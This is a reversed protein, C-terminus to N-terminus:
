MNQPSYEAASHQMTHPGNNPQGPQGEPPTSEPIPPINNMVIARCFEAMPTETSYAIARIHDYESPTLSLRIYRSQKKEVSKAPYAM